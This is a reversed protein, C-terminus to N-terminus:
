SKLPLIAQREPKDGIADAKKGQAAPIVRCASRGAPAPSSPQSGIPTLDPPPTRAGYKEQLRALTALERKRTYDAMKQAEAAAHFIERRDQKLVAIWSQL